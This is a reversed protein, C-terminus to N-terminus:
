FNMNEASTSSFESQIKLRMYSQQEDV